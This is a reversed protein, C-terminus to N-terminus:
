RARFAKGRCTGHDLPVAEHRDSAGTRIDLEKTEDAAGGIHPWWCTSKTLM